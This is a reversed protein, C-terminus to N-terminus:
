LSMSALSMPFKKGIEELKLIPVKTDMLIVYSTKKKFIEIILDYLIKIKTTRPKVLTQSLLSM